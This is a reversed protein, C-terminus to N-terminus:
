NEHRGVRDMRLPLLRIGRRSTPSSSTQRAAAPMGRPTDFGQLHGHEPAQPYHVPTNNGLWVMEVGQLGMVRYTEPWRRDNCICMGIRGGFGEFVRFGLDGPEFYRKELHQFRRWPEHEAHGPLHIKRYKGLVRGDPGVLIATNFRRKAGRQEVLEAYGLCFGLGLRKAEDFLPQTAPGPMGTEYFADLEAADEIWGRPFVTPLTLERGVVVGAVRRPAERRHGM